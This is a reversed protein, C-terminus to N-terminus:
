GNGVELLVDGARTIYQTKFVVETDAQSLLRQYSFKILVTLTSSGLEEDETIIVDNLTLGKLHFGFAQTISEILMEAAEEPNDLVAQGAASGFGPNMVREKYRTMVTSVVRDQWIKELEETYTVEGSSSISFPLSISRSM